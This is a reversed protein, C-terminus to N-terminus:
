TNILLQSVYFLVYKWILTNGHRCPKTPKSLCATTSDYDSTKKASEEEKMHSASSCGKM